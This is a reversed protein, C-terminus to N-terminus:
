LGNTSEEITEIRWFRKPENTPWSGLDQWSGDGPLSHVPAASFDLNTSTKLYHRFGVKTLASVTAEGPVTQTDVVWTLPSNFYSHADWELVSVPTSNNSTSYSKGMGPLKQYLM